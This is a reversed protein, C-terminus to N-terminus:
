CFSDSVNWAAYLNPVFVDVGGDGGNGGTLRAGTVITSGTNQFVASPSIYYVAASVSSGSLRTLRALNFFITSADEAIAGGSFANGLGRVSQELIAFGSALAHDATGVIGLCVLFQLLAASLRNRM